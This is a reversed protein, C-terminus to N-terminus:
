IYEKFNEMIKTKPSDGVVFDVRQGEKFLVLAPISRIDLKNAVKLCDELKYQCVKIRGEYDEAIEKVTPILEKCPGCWSAWFDVLVPGDAEEVEATWNDDTVKTINSM